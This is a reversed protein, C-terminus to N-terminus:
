GWVQWGPAVARTGDPARPVSRAAASSGQGQQQELLDQLHQQQQQRQQAHVIRQIQREKASGPGWDRGTLSTVVRSSLIKKTLAWLVSNDSSSALAASGSPEQAHLDAAAPPATAQVQLPLNLGQPPQELEEEEAAAARRALPHVAGHAAQAGQMGPQMGSGGTGAGERSTRVAVFLVLAVAAQALLLAMCVSTCMRRRGM